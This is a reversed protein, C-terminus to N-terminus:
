KPETENIINIVATVDAINLVGDGNVDAADMNFSSSDAGNILNIIATVDAINITDDGNADGVVYVPEVAHGGIYYLRFNDAAIWNANSAVTKMGIEVDQTEDITFEIAFHQPSLSVVDVEQDGIYLTAGTVDSGEQPNALADAELRYHGAPLQSITQSLAYDALAEDSWIQIFHDMVIDGNECRGDQYGSTIWGTPAQWGLDFRDIDPNAIYAGTVDVEGTLTTRALYDRAAEKIAAIQAFVAAYDTADNVMTRAEAIDTQLPNDEVLTISVNDFYFTIDEEKNIALSFAISRFDRMYGGADSGDCEAPVTLINEFHKWSTTFEPMDLCGWHVYEGPENHWEASVGATTSARYDFSVSFQTGAPLTQPLCIWFQTDWDNAAGATSTVAICRSGDVGEDAVITAPVVEGSPYEKSRFSTADTTELDGNAIVNSCEAMSLKLVRMAEAEFEDRAVSLASKDSLNVYGKHLFAEASGEPIVFQVTNPVGTFGQNFTNAPVDDLFTVTQLSSCNKFNDPGQFHKGYITVTQLATCGNFVDCPWIWQPDDCPEMTFSKLSTCGNFASWGEPYTGAPLTVTELSQCEIFATPKIVAECGNFDVSELDHCGSFAGQGITTVAAPLTVSKLATCGAFAEDDITALATFYRLEDFSTIEENWKFVEGLGTVAAAEAESLEGDSNDDWNAVCLEKVKGDAFVIAPSPSSVEEIQAFDQWFEAAQYAAKTGAPVYLTANARNSFTAANMLAIPEDWEVTVSTLKYCKNFASTGITVLSSPLVISSLTSCEEFAYSEISTVGEPITVNKLSNCERFAWSSITEVNAPIVVSTITSEKFAEFPIETLGTFYQFEDFTSIRKKKFVKEPWNSTTVAAAETLSLQGDQDTDWTNVCISKVTADAFNITPLEVIDQFEQWYPAAEYLAKTGNPVCLTINERTSFTFNHTVGAPVDGCASVTTLGTCGYFAGQGISKVSNPITVATLSTCDMFAGAEISEVGNPITLSYLASCEEFARASITKVSKPIAVATLGACDKFAEEGIYAMSSPFTVSTLGTQGEFANDGIATTGDAIEISTDAPMAGKYRYIVNGAYVLGNPQNSIWGTNYFADKGISTVSNPVAIEWLNTCKYFAKAGIRKVSNPISISSLNTCKEFLEDAIEVTGDKIIIYASVTSTGLYKYAVSGAYAVDDYSETLLTTWNTYDFADAEVHTVSSPITISTLGTCYSFAGHGISTVTNPIIISTLTRCYLFASTGIATVTYGDVTSPITVQGTTSGSIAGYSKVMCTKDLECIVTFSMEVGEETNTQLTQGDYGWAGICSLMTLITLLLRTKRMIMKKNM